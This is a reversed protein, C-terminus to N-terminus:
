HCAPTICRSQAWGTLEEDTKHFFYDSQSFDPPKKELDGSQAVTAGVAPVAATAVM